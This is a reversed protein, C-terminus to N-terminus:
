KKVLVSEHYVIASVRGDRYHEKVFSTLQKKRDFIGILKRDNGKNKLYLCYCMRGAKHEISTELVYRTPNLDKYFTFGMAKYKDIWYTTRVKLNSVEIDTELLVIDIDQIENKLEIYEGSNQIEEILRGLHTWTNKTGYVQVRDKFRSKLAYVSGGSLKRVTELSMYNSNLLQDLKQKRGM